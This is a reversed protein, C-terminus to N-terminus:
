VVTIQKSFSGIQKGSVLINGSLDYSGATSFGSYTSPINVSFQAKKTQGPQINLGTVKFDKSMVSASGVVPVSRAVTAKITITDIVASGTNKVTIYGNATDGRKYTDKDTGYSVLQAGTATATSGAGTANSVSVSAVPKASPSAAAMVTPNPTSSVATVSVQQGQACLCTFGGICYLGSLVLLAGLTFSLLSIWAKFHGKM